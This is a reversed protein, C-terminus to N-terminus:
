NTIENQFVFYARKSAIEEAKKKSTARGKSIIKGDILLKVSFHTVSDNGTDEYVKYKFSKKVKQCWEIILSKYSTIKSELKKVDVYPVIVSKYIFKQCFTYGRDLYIAGVIAEFINGYINVGYNRSNSEIFEILNLDKGIENLHDRSVIKSRMQTLYGEDAQPAEEFLFAAIIAGLISDGLFELREYNIIRGSIKDVKRLSPHIFAIKYFYINKPKFGLISKIENYFLDEKNKNPHIIKKIFKM